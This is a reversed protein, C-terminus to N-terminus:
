KVRETTVEVMKFPETNGHSHDLFVVDFRMTGDDKFEMIMNYKQTHGMIPDVDEGYMTATKTAEDYPGSAHVAYTGSTDYGSITFENHRRDFGIISVGEIAQGMVELTTTSVLFRGGCILKNISHGEITMPQGGPQMWIKHLNEFEGVCKALLEHEPGPQAAQMVRAMQEPSPKKADQILAASTGVLTIAIACALHLSKKFHM